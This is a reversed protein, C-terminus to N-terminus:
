NIHYFSVFNSSITSIGTANMDTAAYEPQSFDILTPDSGIMLVHRGETMAVEMCNTSASHLGPKM